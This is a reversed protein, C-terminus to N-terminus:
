GLLEENSVGVSAHLQVIKWAGDERHLVAGWRPSFSQGNPLTITPRARGWRRVQRRERGPLAQHARSDWGTGPYM